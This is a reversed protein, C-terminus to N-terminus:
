GTDDDGAKGDRWTRWREDWRRAFTLNEDKGHVRPRWAPCNSAHWGYEGCRTGDPFTAELCAGRESADLTEQLQEAFRALMQSRYTHQTGVGSQCDRILGEIRIRLDEESMLCRM